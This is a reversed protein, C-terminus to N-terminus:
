VWALVLGGAIALLWGSVGHFRDLLWFYAFALGFNIALSLLWILPSGGAMLGLLGAIALIGAFIGAFHRARGSPSNAHWPLLAGLLILKILM